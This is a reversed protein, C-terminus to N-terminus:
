FFDALVDDVTDAAQAWKVEDHVTPMPLTPPTPARFALDKPPATMPAVMPKDLLDDDDDVVVFWGYTEKDDEAAASSFSNDETVSPQQDTELNLTTTITPSCSPESVTPPLGPFIIGALNVALDQSGASIRRNVQRDEKNLVHYEQDFFPTNTTIPSVSELGLSGLNAGFSKYSKTPTLKAKKSPQHEPEYYENSIRKSDNNVEYFLSSLFASTVQPIAFDSEVQSAPSPRKRLNIRPVVLRDKGGSGAHDASHCSFRVGDMLPKSERELLYCAAPDLSLITM